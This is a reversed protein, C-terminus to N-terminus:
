DIHDGENLMIRLDDDLDEYSSCYKKNKFIKYAKWILILVLLSTFLISYM